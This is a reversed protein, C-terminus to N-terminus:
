RGITYTIGIGPAYKTVHNFEEWRTNDPEWYGIITEEYQTARLFASLELRKSAQFSAGIAVVYRAQLDYHASTFHPNNQESFGCHAQWKQCPHTNALVDRVIESRVISNYDLDLQEQGFEFWVRAKDTVETTYGIVYRRGDGDALSQGLIHIDQKEYSAGLYVNKYGVKVEISPQAEFRDDSPVSYSGGIGLWLCAALCLESM